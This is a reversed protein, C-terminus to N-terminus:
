PGYFKAAFNRDVRVIVLNIDEGFDDLFALAVLIISVEVVPELNQVSRSFRGRTSEESSFAVTQQEKHCGPDFEDM